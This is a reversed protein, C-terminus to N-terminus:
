NIHFQFFSSFQAVTPTKKRQKTPKKNQKITKTTKQLIKQPKKKGQGPNHMFLFIDSMHFKRAHKTCQLVKKKKEAAENFWQSKKKGWFPLSDEYSLNIEFSFACYSCIWKIQIDPCRCDVDKCLVHAWWCHM